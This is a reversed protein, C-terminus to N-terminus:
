VPYVTVATAKVALFVARGPYLDLEGVAAPTVSVTVLEGTATSTTVRVEDGSPELEGVTAPLVTRPSGHPADVFVSVANPAFVAAAPAGPAVGATTAEVHLGAPTTVGTAVATGLVLNLGALRATFSTRPHRLVDATPGTEVLRGAEPVAVRDSLLLADLLDHTVLVTTPGVLVTRLVRRVLPAVTVDLAALPEDLLLLRPDTALARAIAVRQAQGGSLEAPRRRALDDTEVTTLQEHATADAARRSTGAARPGFAVNALVSLHPFLLPDQALLGVRRRHPAPWRGSRLDFLPEGDLEAHGSDPRLTGALIALLTSKGAGNPGLVALREHDDVAFTVDFGREALQATFTLGM